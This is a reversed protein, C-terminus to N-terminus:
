SRIRLRSPLSRPNPLWMAPWTGTGNLITPTINVICAVDPALSTTGELQFSSLEAAVWSDADLEQLEKSLAFGINRAVTTKVPLTALMRGLLTTTTTKGNSGTVAYEDM